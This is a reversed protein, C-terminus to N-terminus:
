RQLSGGDGGGLVECVNSDVGVNFKIIHGRSTLGSVPYRRDGIERENQEVRDIFLWLLLMTEM